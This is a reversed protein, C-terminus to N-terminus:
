LINLAPWAVAMSQGVDLSSWRSSLQDLKKCIEDLKRQSIKLLGTAGASQGRWEQM